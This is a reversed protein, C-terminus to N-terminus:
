LRRMWLNFNHIRRLGNVVSAPKDNHKIKPPLPSGIGSFVLRSFSDASNLFV